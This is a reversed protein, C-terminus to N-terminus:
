VVKKLGRAVRIMLDAESRIQDRDAKSRAEVEGSGDLLEKVNRGWDFWRLAVTRLDEGADEAVIDPLYRMPGPPLVEAPEVEEATETEGDDRIDVSNNNRPRGRSSQPEAGLRMQRKSVAQPTCGLEEAIWVQTQGAETWEVVREDLVETAIQGALELRYLMESPLSRVVDRGEPIALEATAM